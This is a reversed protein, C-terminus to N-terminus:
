RELKELFERVQLECQSLDVDNHGAGPITAFQKPEAAADFLRKGSWIPVLEDQDGHVIFVGGKFAGIKQYSPYRNSMLYRVPMFWFLNAAPDPMEAFPCILLLGKVQHKVGLDVVVGSGLSRGVLYVESAPVKARELLWRLAADGDQYLGKEHPQGESKGYGRYDFVFVSADLADRLWVAERAATAVNDGNGHALLMVRKAQPHPLYWGHLRTGDEARFEVEEGGLAAYATWDGVDARSAPYILSNEFWILMLAATGYAGFLFYFTRRAAVRFFRPPMPPKSPTTM